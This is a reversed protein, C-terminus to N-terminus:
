SRLEHVKGISRRIPWPRLEQLPVIGLDIEPSALARQAGLPEGEGVPEGTSAQGAHCGAGPRIFLVVEDDRVVERHERGVECATRVDLGLVVPVQSSLKVAATGRDFEFVPVDACHQLSHAFAPEKSVQGCEIDLRRELISDGAPQVAVRLELHERRAHVPISGALLRRLEDDIQWGRESVVGRWVFEFLHLRDRAFEVDGRLGLAVSRKPAGAFLAYEDVFPREEGADATGVQCLAHSPHRFFVAVPRSVVDFAPGVLALGSQDLDLGGVAPLTRGEVDGLVFEGDCLVPGGLPAEQSQPIEGPLRFGELQAWREVRVHGEDRCAELGSEVSDGKRLAGASAAGRSRASDARQTEPSSTKLAAKLRDYVPGLHFAAKGVWGTLTSRDLDLGSRAYIRVQRYLPTHDAYKSVLVHAIAGETPLAGEILRAPAPAQTVGEECRRCAYKPRVTVIVRLQAPVIDLREARDEGIRVMQGCGCPCLTSEPEIVQEIRPLHEPLHGLNRAPRPRKPPRAPSPDEAAAAAEVEASAGELEEFALQREDASLKESRKGYLLRILELNLHELRRIRESQAENEARLTELAALAQRAADGQEPTLTDLDMEALAAM